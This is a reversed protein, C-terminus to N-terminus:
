SCLNLRRARLIADDRSAVDLKKFINNIHTKVTSVGVYLAEAIEQNGRGEIVLALVDRERRTLQEFPLPLLPVACAADTTRLRAALLPEVFARLPAPIRAQQPGRDRDSLGQQILGTLEQGEHFLLRPLDHDAALQLAENLAQMAAKDDDGRQYLTALLLWADIQLPIHGQVGLDAILRECTRLAENRSGQRCQVWGYALREEPLSHEGQLRLVADWEQLWCHVIDGNPPQRLALRVRYAGCLRYIGYLRHKLAIDRAENLTEIARELHGNASQVLALQHLVWPLAASPPLKLAIAAARNLLREAEPLRNQETRVLGLGLYHFVDYFGQPTAALDHRPGLHLFRREAAATRGQALEIQGALFSLANTYGTLGFRELESLAQLADGAARSLSGLAFHCNARHFRMVSLAANADRCRQLERDCLRIGHRFNGGLYALQARLYLSTQLLRGRSAYPPPQRLLRQIRGLCRGIRGTDRVVHVVSAETVALTFHDEGLGAPINGLSSVIESVEGERLLDFAHKEVVALLASVDHSRGYQYLAETYHGQQLLRDAALRHLTRVQEPDRRNLRRYLSHQLLPHYRYWGDRRTAPQVFLEPRLLPKLTPPQAPSEPALHLALPPDFCNVVCTQLLLHLMPRSLTSLVEERFYDEIYGYALAQVAPDWLSDARPSATAAALWLRIGTVWGETLNTLRYIDGACVDAGARQCLLSIEEAGFALDAADLELLRAGARLWGTAVALRRRGAIVLQLTPPAQRLLADIQRCLRNNHLTGANDLVLLMPAGHRQVCNLLLAWAHEPSRPLASQAQGALDGPLIGARTFAGILHALFRDPDNDQEDLSLWILAGDWQQGFQQLLTTKGYGAPACILTLGSGARPALRELLHARAVAAAPPVPPNLKGLLVPMQPELPGTDSM